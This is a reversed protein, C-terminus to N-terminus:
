RESVHPACSTLDCNRVDELPGDSLLTLAYIVLITAIIYAATRILRPTVNVMTPSISRSHPWGPAGGAGHVHALGLDPRPAFRRPVANSPSLGDDRPREKRAPREKATPEHRWPALATGTLLPISFRVTPRRAFWKRPV